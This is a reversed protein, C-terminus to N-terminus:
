RSWMCLHFKLTISMYINGCTSLVCYIPILPHYKPVFTWIECLSFWVIIVYIMIVEFLGEFRIGLRICNACISTDSYTWHNEAPWRQLWECNPVMILWLIMNDVFKFLWSAFSPTLQYFLLCGWVLLLRWLAFCWFSLLVSSDNIFMNFLLDVPSRCQM